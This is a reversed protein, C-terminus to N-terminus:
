PQLRRAHWDSCVPDGGSGRTVRREWRGRDHLRADGRVWLEMASIWIRYGGWFSPRPIPTGKEPFRERTAELAAWLDARANLPYSQASAWAGIQSDRDRSDFYEDSEAEPSRMALGEVRVQRNMHDWHFVGAVRPQSEIAVSKSSEYNTYFVLYGPTAVVQKCLVIRAAPRNDAAVTALSMADPNPLTGDRRADDLWTQFL